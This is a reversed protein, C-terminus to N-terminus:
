TLYVGRFPHIRHKVVEGISFKANRNLM